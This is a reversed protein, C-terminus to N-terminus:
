SRPLVYLALKSAVEAAILSLVFGVVLKTSRLGSANKFGQYLLTVQWAVCPLVIIAIGILAPTPKREHVSGLHSGLFSIALGAILLPLRSLGVMGIFDIVRVHQATALAYAWFILSPILWAGVQEFISAQLSPIARVVHLDLLGDFRVGLRTVLISLISILLGILVAKGGGFRDFPNIVLFQGGRSKEDPMADLLRKGEDPLVSGAEVLRRIRESPTM